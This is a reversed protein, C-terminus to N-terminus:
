QLLVRVAHKVEELVHDFIGKSAPLGQQCNEVEVTKVYINCLLICVKKTGIVDERGACMPIRFTPHHGFYTLMLFKMGLRPNESRDEDPFYTIIM